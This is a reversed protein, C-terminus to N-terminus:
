AERKQEREPTPPLSKEPMSFETVQVKESEAALPAKEATAAPTHADETPEDDDADQVIGGLSRAYRWHRERASLSQAFSLSKVIAADCRAHLERRLSRQLYTQLDALPWDRPVFELVQLM